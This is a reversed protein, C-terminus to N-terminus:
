HIEEKGDLAMALTNQVPPGQDGGTGDQPISYRKCDQVCQDSSGNKRKVGSGRGPIIEKSSREGQSVMGIFSGTSMIRMMMEIFPDFEDGEQISVENYKTRGASTLFRIVVIGRLVFGM